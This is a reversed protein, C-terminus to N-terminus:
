IESERTVYKCSSIFIRKKYGLVLGILEEVTRLIKKRTRKIM